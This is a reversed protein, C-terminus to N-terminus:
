FNVCCQNMSVFGITKNDALSFLVPHYRSTFEDFDQRDQKHLESAYRAFAGFSAFRQAPLSWKYFVFIESDGFLEIKRLFDKYELWEADLNMLCRSFNMRENVNQLIRKEQENLRNVIEIGDKKVGFKEEPSLVAKGFDIGWFISAGLCYLKIKRFTHIDVLLYEGNGFSFLNREFDKKYEALNKHFLIRDICLEDKGVVSLNLFGEKGFSELLACLAPDDFVTAGYPAIQWDYRYNATLNPSLAGLVDKYEERAENTRRRRETFLRKLEAIKQKQIM